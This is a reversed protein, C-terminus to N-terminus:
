GRDASGGQLERNLCRSPLKAVSRSQRPRRDAIGCLTMWFAQESKPISAGTALQALHDNRPPARRLSRSWSPMAPVLNSRQARLSMPKRSTLDRGGTRLGPSLRRCLPPFYRKGPIPRHIASKATARGPSTALRATTRHANRGIPTSPAWAACRIPRGEPPPRGDKQAM